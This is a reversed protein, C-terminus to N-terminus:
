KMLSAHAGVFKAKHQDPLMDAVMLMIEKYGATGKKPALPMGSKAKPQSGKKEKMYVTRAKNYASFVAKKYAQGSM